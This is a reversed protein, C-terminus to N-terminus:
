LTNKLVSKVKEIIEEPYFPRGDYKLLKEVVDIGTKERILGALQGSYNAEIDIVHKSQGLIEKVVDAPFPNMWTIHLYNVNKLSKIAELISGKNSGWSVLTVDAVAPGFLQPKPMDVTECTKLKTMRKNMQKKREDVEETSFGNVDHEDSNAVFFNGYGPFSRVSVGDVSHGYREYDPSAKITFKGRDLVNSPATFPDFSQDCECINKDILVIVPTQYRDALNFADKTLSFAEGADGAALVIRPFDGQHAHLVFRLDGQESWTPLGTAPAGRMGEIIVLPTETMGALGLGETMLCFGGGSTATLSRAGAFSAGVAMNIASIEDEPQKYIFGFKEQLSALVSLIGSIPSMPYISAFRLGGCVSGLAVAENGNIIMKNESKLKKLVAGIVSSFNKLVFDYGAKAARQNIEILDGKFRELILGNLVELDGSTLALIAGLAVTNVTLVSGGSNKSLTSLPVPCVNVGNGIQSIDIKAGDDIIVTAGVTLEHSHLVLTEQNLAVLIDARRRPSTVQRRSINIQMYNHGGHILSSFETHTYINYGSRTAVRALAL